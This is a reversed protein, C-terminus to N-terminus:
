VTFLQFFDKGTVGIGFAVATQQDLTLVYVQVQIELQSSNLFQFFGLVKILFNQKLCQNFM